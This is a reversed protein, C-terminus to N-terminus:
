RIPRGEADLVALRWVPVAPAEAGLLLAGLAAPPPCGRLPLRLRLGWAFAAPALAGLPEALALPELERVAPRADRGDWTERRADRVIWQPLSRAAEIARRAGAEDLDPIAVAYDALAASRTAHPNDPGVRRVDVFVVGGHALATLRGALGPPDDPEAALQVDGPEALAAVGLALPAALALRPAPHFGRTYALPLGVRRMARVIARVFDLHGLHVAPGTKRV